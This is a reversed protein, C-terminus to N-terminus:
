LLFYPKIKNQVLDAQQCPSLLTSSLPLKGKTMPECTRLLESRRRTTMQLIFQHIDTLEFDEVFGSQSSRSSSWFFLQKRKNCKRGGVPSLLKSCLQRSKLSLRCRGRDSQCRGSSQPSDKDATRRDPQGDGCAVLQEAAPRVLLSTNRRTSDAGHVHILVSHPPTSAPPTCVAM